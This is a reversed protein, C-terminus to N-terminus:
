TGRLIYKRRRAISQLFKAGNAGLRATKGTVNFCGDFQGMFKTEVGTKGAVGLKFKYVGPNGEPDIGGLDYFQNGRKKLAAIMSWQLLYAGNLGMGNDGTAGLVYTGTDGITSLITASVPKGDAECIFIRMKLPEPLDAQLRRSVDFNVGPTFQKRELMEKALELFTVFLKDDTGEIIRLANKEAKNLCNRWKQLLNKRIEELPPTLDLLLSRFPPFTDNKRFGQARLVELLLPQTADVTHPWLRIYLGRKLGYENKLAHIMRSYINLDAKESKKQWLPGCKIDAYGIPGLTRVTVQCCGVVNDNTKLVLHSLRETGWHVAGFSWTQNISADDFRTILRDWEARQITDVEIQFAHSSM